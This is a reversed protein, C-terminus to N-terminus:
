QRSPSAPFVPPTGFLSCRLHHERQPDEGRLSLLKLSTRESPALQCNQPVDSHKQSTGCPLEPVRGQAKHRAVQRRVLPQALHAVLVVFLDAAVHPGAYGPDVEEVLEVVDEPTTLCGM